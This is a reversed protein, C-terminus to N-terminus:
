KWYGSWFFHRRCALGFCVEVLLSAWQEHDSNFLAVFSSYLGLKDILSLNVFLRFLRRARGIGPNPMGSEWFMLERVMRDAAVDERNLSALNNIFALFQAYDREIMIRVNTATAPVFTCTSTFM